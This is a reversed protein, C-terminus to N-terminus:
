ARAAVVIQAKRGNILVPFSNRRVLEKRATLAEVAEAGGGTLVVLSGGTVLAELAFHALDTYLSAVSTEPADYHGWPPDTVIADVLGALEPLLQLCDGEILRVDSM